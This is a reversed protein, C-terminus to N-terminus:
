DTSGFAFRLTLVEVGPNRAGLHANSIHSFGLGVRVLPDPAVSLELSSRFEIASGLDGEGSALVVGPAFGPTLRVSGGLPIELGAGAYVYAAGGTTALLGAVPRVVAWRWPARVELEMGLSHPIEKRIGYQGAGMAVAGRDARAAAAGVLLFAASASAIRRHSVRQQHGIELFRDV